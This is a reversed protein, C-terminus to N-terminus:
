SCARGHPYLIYIANYVINIRMHTIAHVCLQLKCAHVRSCKQVQSQVTSYTYYIAYIQSIVRPGKARLESSIKVSM